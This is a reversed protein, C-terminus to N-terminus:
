KKFLLGYHYPPLDLQNQLTFGVTTAWDILLEPKPRISMSPGRPTDESNWHIVGIQGHPSLINYVTKLLVIPQECHLINFLCVYDIENGYLKVTELTKETCIDGIILETNSIENEKIKKCCANIMEEDIDIGIVKNAVLSASPILFTGYGCGIDILTRIEKNVGMQELIEISNFFTDWLQESPMGSERYKM